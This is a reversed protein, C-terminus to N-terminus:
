PCAIRLASSSCSARTANSFFTTPTIKSLTQPKTGPPSVSVYM